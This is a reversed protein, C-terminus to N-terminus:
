RGSYVRTGVIFGLYGIPYTHMAKGGRIKWVKDEVAVAGREPGNEKSGKILALVEEFTRTRLCSVAGDFSM